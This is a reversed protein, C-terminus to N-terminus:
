PPSPLRGAHLNLNTGAGHSGAILGLGRTERGEDLLPEANFRENCRTLGPLELHNGIALSNDLAPSVPQRSAEASAIGIEFTHDLLELLAQRLALM